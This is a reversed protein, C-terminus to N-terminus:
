LVVHSSTEAYNKFRDDSRGIIVKICILYHSKM